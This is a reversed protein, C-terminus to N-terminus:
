LSVHCFREVEDNDASAGTAAREAVFQRLAADLHDHQFCALVIGLGIELVTADPPNDILNNAARHAFWDMPGSLPVGCNQWGHRGSDQFTVLGSIDLVELM